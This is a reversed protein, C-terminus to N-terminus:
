PIGEHTTEVPSVQLYDLPLGYQNKLLSLYAKGADDLTFKSVIVMRQCRGSHDWHGYELLQGVAQRICSKLDTAVKIEFYVMGNPGQVAIDVFGVGPITHECDVNGLGYEEVLCKWLADQIAQHEQRRFIETEKTVVKVPGQSRIPPPSPIFLPLSDRGETILEISDGSEVYAWIPLLRDWLELVQRPTIKESRERNGFFIFNNLVCLSEPIPGHALPHPNDSDSVEWYCYPLEDFIWPKGVVLRNFRTVLPLLNEVPDRLAKSPKFSFAVGYRLWAGAEVLGLNFQLEKRGGYHFAFDDKVTGLEGFRFIGGPASPTERVQERFEQFRGFPGHWQRAEENVAHVFQLFEGPTM